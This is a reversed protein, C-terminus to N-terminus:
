IVFSSEIDFILNQINSTNKGWSFMQFITVSCFKLETQTGETNFGIYINEGWSKFAFGSTLLILHQNKNIDAIKFSGAKAVEIIKEFLLDVPIDFTQSYQKKSTLINYKSTFYKQFTLRDRVLMTLVFLTIILIPVAKLFVTNNPYQYILFLLIGALLLKTLTSVTKQM